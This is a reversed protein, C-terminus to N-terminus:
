KGVKLNGVLVLAAGVILLGLPLWILFCATAVLVAGTAECATQATRTRTARAQAM